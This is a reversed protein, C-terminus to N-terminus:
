ASVARVLVEEQSGKRKAASGEQEGQQSHTWMNLLEATGAAM